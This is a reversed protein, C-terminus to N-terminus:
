NCKAEWLSDLVPKLAASLRMYADRTLHLGDFRFMNAKSKWPQDEIPVNSDFFIAHTSNEACLTALGENVSDIFTRGFFSKLPARQLSMFVVVTNPLKERILDFYARQRAITSQATSWTFSDNSGYYYVVIRPQRRLVLNDIHLLAYTSTAGAVGCNCTPLPAFDSESDHWFAIISSGALVIGGKAGKNADVNVNEGSGSSPYIESHPSDMAIAFICCEAGVFDLTKIFHKLFTAFRKM